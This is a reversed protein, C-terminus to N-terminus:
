NRPKGSRAENMTLIGQFTEKKVRTLEGEEDYEYIIAFNNEDLTSMLRLNKPDYVYTEMSADFPQVRIDDIFGSVSSKNIFRIKVTKYGQKLNFRGGIKQWRDV